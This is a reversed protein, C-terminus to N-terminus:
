GGGGLGEYVWRRRDDWPKRIRDVAAVRTDEAQQGWMWTPCDSPPFHPVEIGKKPTVMRLQSYHPMPGLANYSQMLGAALEGAVEAPGNPLDGEGGWAILVHIAGALLPESAHRDSWWPERMPWRGSVDQASWVGGERWVRWDPAQTCLCSGGHLLLRLRM